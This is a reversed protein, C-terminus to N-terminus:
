TRSMLMSAMRRSSASQRRPWVAPPVVTSGFEGVQRSAMARTSRLGAPSRSPTKMLGILMALSVVDPTSTAARQRMGVSFKPRKM